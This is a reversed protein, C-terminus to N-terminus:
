LEWSQFWNKESFGAGAFKETESSFIALKTELWWVMGSQRTVEPPVVTGKSILVTLNTSLKLAPVLPDADASYKRLFPNATMKRWLSFDKFGNALCKLVQSRRVAMSTPTSPFMDM